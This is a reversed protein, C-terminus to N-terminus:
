RILVWKGLSWTYLNPVLAEHKSLYMTTFKILKSLNKTTILKVYVLCLLTELSSLNKNVNM